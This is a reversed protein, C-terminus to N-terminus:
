AVLGLDDDIRIVGHRKYSRAWGPTRTRRAVQHGERSGQANTNGELTSYHTFDGDRPDGDSNDLVARIAVIHGSGSNGVVFDGRDGSYVSQLRGCDKAWAWWFYTSAPYKPLKRRDAGAERLAWTLLAACWPAPVFVGAAALFEKVRAGWNWGVERVGLVANLVHVTREALSANRWVHQSMTRVYDPKPKDRWHGVYTAADSQPLNLGTVAGLAMTAWAALLHPAATLRGAWRAAKGPHGDLTASGGDNRWTKLQASDSM